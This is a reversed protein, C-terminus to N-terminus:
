KISMFGQLSWKVQDFLLSPGPFMVAWKSRKRKLLEKRSSDKEGEERMRGQIPDLWQGIVKGRDGGSFKLGMGKLNLGRQIEFYFKKSITM